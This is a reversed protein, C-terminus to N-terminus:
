LRLDRLRSALLQATHRVITRSGALDLGGAIQLICGPCDAAVIECGTETINKLKRDLISASIDPYRFSYSGAFGCCVDSEHMESLAYGAASLLRRPEDAIGLGRRLHCSDHYTVTRGGEEGGDIRSSEFDLGIVNVFLDAFDFTRSAVSSAPDQLNTGALLGPFEQKLVIGCTPCATVIYDVHAGDLLEVNKRALDRAASLDGAYVAPAGCCAQGHPFVFDVGYASLV